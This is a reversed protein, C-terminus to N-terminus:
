IVSTRSPDTVPFADARRLRDVLASVSETKSFDIEQDTVGTFVLFEVRGSPLSFGSPLGETKFVIANRIECAERGDIPSHLPIQDGPVFPERRGFRGAGLLLDYALMNQLFLIAWDGPETVAFLFEVGAGSVGNPDYAEPELQWPNSRASTVYLWYPREATPGFEIVGHSLWRPDYTAQKFRNIFVDGSLPFIGRQAGGFLSPYIDEERIRWVEELDM